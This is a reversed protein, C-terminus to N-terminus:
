QQYPKLAEACAASIAKSESPNVQSAVRAAWEACSFPITITVTEPKPPTALKQLHCVAQDFAVDCLDHMASSGSEVVSWTRDANRRVRINIGISKEAQRILDELDEVTMTNAKRKPTPNSENSDLSPPNLIRCLGLVAGLLSTKHGDFDGFVSLGDFANAINKAEPPLILLGRQGDAFEILGTKIPTGPPFPLKQVDM